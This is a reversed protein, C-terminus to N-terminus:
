LESSRLANALHHITKSMTDLADAVRLLTSPKPNSPPIPPSAWNSVISSPPVQKDFPGLLGSTDIQPPAEASPLFPMHLPDAEEVPPAPMFNLPDNLRVPDIADMEHDEQAIAETSKTNNWPTDLIIHSRRYKRPAGPELPELPEVLHCDLIDLIADAIEATPQTGDVTIIPCGCLGAATDEHAAHLGHLYERLNPMLKKESERARRQVREICVDPPTRVYIHAAPVWNVHDLYMRTFLQLDLDDLNGLQHNLRIFTHLQFWNSREVFIYDQVGDGEKFQLLGRDLWVALQLRLSGKADRNYASELYPAWSEVPELIVRHGRQRLLELLTTKGAGINGDITVIPM